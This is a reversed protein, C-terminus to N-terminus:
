ALGALKEGGSKLNKAKMESMSKFFENLGQANQAEATAMALATSNVTQQRQMNVAQMTEHDVPPSHPSGAGGPPFGLPQRPPMGGGAVPERGCLGEPAHHAQNGYVPAQPAPDDFPNTGPGKITNHASIFPNSGIDNAM